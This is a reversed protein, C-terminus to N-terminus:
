SRYRTRYWTLSAPTWTRGSSKSPPASLRASDFNKTGPAAYDHFAGVVRQILADRESILSRLALRRQANEREVNIAWATEAQSIGPGTAQLETRAAEADAALAALDRTWWRPSGDDGPPAARNSRTAARMADDDLLGDSYGSTEHRLWEMADADDLLRALRSTKRAADVPAIHSLEIGSLLEEALQLAEDRRSVAM